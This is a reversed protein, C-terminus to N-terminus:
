SNGAERIAVVKEEKELKLALEKMRGRQPLTYRQTMVPKSHGLWVATEISSAGNEQLVTSVERRFSHFGFGPFYIGLRKAARVMHHRVQMETMPRSQKTFIRGSPQEIARLRECLKETIPIERRGSESKVVDIDGRWARQEVTIWGASTDVHRWELGLMESIRCGTARLLAVILNLPAPLAAVLRETEKEGILRREYVDRHKGIRVREVPNRGEWYGWDTAREFILKLASRLSARSCSALPKRNLWAQIAETTLEGLQREGLDPLLHKRVAWHYSHRTPASLGAVHESLWRPIFDGLKVQSGVVVGASGNIAEMFKAALREAARKTVEARAKRMEPDNTTPCYGLFKSKQRRAERGNVYLYVGYRIRWYARKGERREVSPM